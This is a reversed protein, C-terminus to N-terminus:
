RGGGVSLERVVVVVVSSGACDEAEENGLEPKGAAMGSSGTVGSLGTAAAATAGAAFSAVVVVGVVGVSGSDAGAASGDFSSLQHHSVTGVTENIGYRM